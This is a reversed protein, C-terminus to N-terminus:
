VVLFKPTCSCFHCAPPATWETFIIESLLHIDPPAEYAEVFEDIAQELHEGCVVYM